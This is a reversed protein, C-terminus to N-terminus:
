ATAPVSARQEAKLLKGDLADEIAQANQAYTVRASGLFMSIAYECATDFAEVLDDILEPVPDTYRIGLRKAASEVMRLQAIDGSALAESSLRNVEEISLSASAMFLMKASDLSDLDLAFKKKLSSRLDASAEDLWERNAKMLEEKGDEAAQCQSDTWSRTSIGEDFAKRASEAKRDWADCASGVEAVHKRAENMAEKVMRASEFAFDM